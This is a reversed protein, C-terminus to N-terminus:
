KWNPVKVLRAYNSVICYSGKGPVNREFYLVNSLLGNDDAAGIIIIKRGTLPDISRAKEGVTLGIDDNIGGDMYGTGNHWNDNFPVEKEIAYFAEEFEKKLIEKEVSLPWDGEYTCNELTREFITMEKVLGDLGDEVKKIDKKLEKERKHLTYAQGFFFGSMFFCGISIVLRANM